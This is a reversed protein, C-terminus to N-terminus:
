VRYKSDTIILYANEVAAAMDMNMNSNIGEARDLWVQFGAKILGDYIKM